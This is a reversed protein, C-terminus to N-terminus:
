PNKNSSEVKEAKENMPIVEAPKSEQEALAKEIRTTDMGMEKLKAIADEESMVPVNTGAIVGNIFKTQLDDENALMKMFFESYAESQEFADRLEKSKIFRKGDESKIGYADLILSKFTEVITKNDNTAILMKLKEEIGATTSLEKEMMEAKSYNFYLTENRETGNYDTYPIVYKFM